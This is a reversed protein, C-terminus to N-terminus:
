ITLDNEESIIKANVFVDKIVFLIVSIFLAAASVIFLPMYGPGCWATIAAVAMCLWALIRLLMINESTFMRENKINLLLRVLVALAAYAMAACPIFCGKLIKWIREYHEPANEIAGYHGYYTEFIARFRISIYTLAAAVLACLALSVLVSGKKKEM